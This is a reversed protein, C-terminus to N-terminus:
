SWNQGILIVDLVNTSGDENVDQPIWGNAGTEGWHQAVSIVDLVNVLGDANVDPHTINSVTITIDEADTLSGDTVAFHVAAYIGSQNSGPTWTFVRTAPNFSAGSPLNSASYTLPNGDPDSASVTFTLAQGENVAKNANLVPARNISVTGNNVTVPVSNGGADGIIVNSLTLASSGGGSAATMTITAMTGATSVTHGPTIITGFVGSITGTTNNITGAYFYTSNGGQTFLDGETVSVATAVAPNFALNFQMGAINNNPTVSISVTFQQGPNITGGPVTVSVVANGAASALGPLFIAGSLVLLIAIYILLRLKGQNKV